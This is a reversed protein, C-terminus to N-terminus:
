INTASRIHTRRLPETAGRAMLSRTTPRSAWLLAKMASSRTASTTSLVFIRELEALHPHALAGALALREM